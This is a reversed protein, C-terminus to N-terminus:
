RTQKDHCVESETDTHDTMLRQMAERLQERAHFLRSKVTGPNIEFVRALATISLDESYKLSLLARTEVPLTRMASRVLELTDDTEHKGTTSRTERPTQDAVTQQARRQRQNKRILDVVKRTVIRYAWAPFTAPDGLRRIGRMIAMWADQVADDALDHQGTMRWAHRRLRPHWRKFLQEAAASEGDQCRLVLLEDLIHEVQRTM